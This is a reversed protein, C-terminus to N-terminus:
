RRAPGSSWGLRRITAVTGERASGDLDAPPALGLLAALTPALDVLPFVPGDPGLEGAAGRDVLDGPGSRASSSTAASVTPTAATLFLLPVERDYDYPGGHSTGFAYGGSIFWNPPL